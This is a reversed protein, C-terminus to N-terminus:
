IIKSIGLDRERIYFLGSYRVGKTIVKVEHYETSKYHYVDGVDAIFLKDNLYFEGGEYEDNLKVNINYVFDKNFEFEAWRDIHRPFNYGVLYRIVGLNVHLISLGLQEKGYNIIKNSIHEEPEFAYIQYHTRDKWNNQEECFKIIDNCENKTFLKKHM